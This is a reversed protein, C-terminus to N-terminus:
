RQRAATNPYLSALFKALRWLRESFTWAALEGNRRHQERLAEREAWSSGNAPTTSRRVAGFGASLATKMTPGVLPSVALLRTSASFIATWASAAPMSTRRTNKGCAVHSLTSALM